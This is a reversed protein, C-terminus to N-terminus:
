SAAEEKALGEIIDAAMLMIKTQCDFPDLEGFYPCSRCPEKATGCFRLGKALQDLQKKTM